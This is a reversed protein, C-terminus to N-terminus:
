NNGPLTGKEWKAMHEQFVEYQKWARDIRDKLDVISQRYSRVYYEGSFIGDKNYKKSEEYDRQQRLVDNFVRM